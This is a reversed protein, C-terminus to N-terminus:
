RAFALDQEPTSIPAIGYNEVLIALVNPTIFAPLSPGIKINKIGLHLLTLLVSVAKQEYWSLILTLPLDNVGCGFADALASAIKIASYADNCQGLDLLRPLGAVTGFEHKNFRYKGCGLTMIISDQPAQDAVETYYNRGPRAGDCGGILYFHKVAGSKVAEIVKDAVGLVANHAFGILITDDPGDKPFGPAALASEIVPTFDRDAIHTVDPWGVQGCTFLRNQYVERPKQICNTTVLIAGPFASFELAQKQWAGGFNGILHPFEKLKPYANAPLLEGHTYVNIGKGETQQLLAYLDAIDHGSVLIAKGKRAHIRVNTPEPNGFAGTNAQDLLEMARLNAEGTRLCLGLLDGLPLDKTLADMAEHIFAYVAPDEVGIVVAHHLYAALGKLGYTLLEQTSAVDADVRERRLLVSVTEAEDLMTVLDSPEWLAPGDLSEAPVAAASCADAYLKAAQRKVDGAEQLITEFRSVDFNVNTLTTFMAAVVFRDVEADISGLQRARHAYMSIGKLAHVVLDQLAATEPDKGCVGQAVCGTGSSTQECQFCFM